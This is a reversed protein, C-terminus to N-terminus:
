NRNTVFSHGSEPAAISCHEKWVITYLNHWEADEDCSGGTLKWSWRKGDEQDAFHLREVEAPRILLVRFNARSVPDDLDTVKKGLGLGPESSVTVPSKRPIDQLMELPAFVSMLSGLNHLVCIERLLPITCLVKHCRERPDM